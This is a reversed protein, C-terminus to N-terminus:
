ARKLANLLQNSLLRKYGPLWHCSATSHWEKPYGGSTSLLRHPRKETSQRHHDMYPTTRLVLRSSSYYEYLDVMGVEERKWLVENMSIHIYRM